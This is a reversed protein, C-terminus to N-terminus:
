VVLYANINIWEDSGELACDRDYYIGAIDELVGSKRAMM